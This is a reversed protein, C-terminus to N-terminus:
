GTQHFSLQGDSSPEEEVISGVDTKSRFAQQEETLSSAKINISVTINCESGTTGAVGNPIAELLIGMM